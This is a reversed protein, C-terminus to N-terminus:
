NCSMMKIREERLTIRFKNNQQLSGAFCSMKLRLHPCCGCVTCAYDASIMDLIM